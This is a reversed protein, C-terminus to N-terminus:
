LFRQGDRDGSNMHQGRNELKVSVYFARKSVISVQIVIKLDFIHKPRESFKGISNQISEYIAQHNGPSRLSLTMENNCYAAVHM